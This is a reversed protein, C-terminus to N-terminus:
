DNTARRNLKWKSALGSRIKKPLSISELFAKGDLHGIEHQVCVSHIGHFVRTKEAGTEDQFKVEVWESRELLVLFEGPASLCGEKLNAPVKSKRLIEPNIFYVKEANPAEMVFMRLELGVQNAALGIGRSSKMLDFMGDLITKLEEGFVTVPKCKAFLSPHPFKLLEM